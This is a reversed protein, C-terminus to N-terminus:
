KENERQKESEKFIDFMKGCDWCEVIGGILWRKGKGYTLYRYSNCNPCKINESVCM